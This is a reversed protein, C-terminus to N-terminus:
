FAMNRGFCKQFNPINALEIFCVSDRLAQATKLLSQDCALMKAGVGAANGVVTIKERLQPPLLGIKCANESRMFSGFAGSLLVRDIQEFSISLYEAMLEIGAAIAGKALQLERIDNQTIYVQDTLYLVRQGDVERDDLIRGRKNILGAELFVAAADILGSGCIGTAPGGGIVSCRINGNELWVHDIAGRAGRMGFKIKAGELAPGAATSCATLKERNGLVMEGNTGIDVMLTMPTERYMGTALICGMTDAGVYGAIDPVVILKANKCAPLYSAASVVDTHTIVPAFPVKSLNDPMIGMFLQQMCPNAVVSVVSIEAPHIGAQGCVDEILSEMGDQIATKQEGLTGELASQMRSIVDAGYTIQPNLMSAHALEKGSIGDILFCVVTTTGIDFALLFGKELPDLHVSVDMGSTLIDSAAKQPLMVTIDHTVTAQCSLVDEGDVRVVCKGCSGHGGCPADPAFNERRLFALLNEGPNAELVNGEPLITVKCSM